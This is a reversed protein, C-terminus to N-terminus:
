HHLFLVFWILSLSVPQMEKFVNRNFMNLAMILIKWQCMRSSMSMKTLSFNWKIIRNVKADQCNTYLMFYGPLTFIISFIIAPFSLYIFSNYSHLRISLLPYVVSIYREVSVSVTLYVSMVLSTQFPQVKIFNNDLM